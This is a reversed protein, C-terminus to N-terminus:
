KLYCLLKILKSVELSQHLFGAFNFTNDRKNYPIQSANFHKSFIRECGPNCSFDDKIIKPSRDPYGCVKREYTTNHDQFVFKFCDPKFIRAEESINFSDLGWSVANSQITKFSTLNTHTKWDLIKSTMPNGWDLM